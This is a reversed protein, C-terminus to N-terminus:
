KEFNEWIAFVKVRMWSQIDYTEFPLRIQIEPYKRHGTLM